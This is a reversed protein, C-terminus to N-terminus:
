HFGPKVRAVTMPTLLYLIPSWCRKIPRKSSQVLLLYGVHPSQQTSNLKWKGVLLHATHLTCSNHSWVHMRAWADYVENVFYEIRRRATGRYVRRYYYLPRFEKVFVLKTFANAIVRGSNSACRIIQFCSNIVNNTPHFPSVLVNEWYMKEINKAYPFPRLISAM